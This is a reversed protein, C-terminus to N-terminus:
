IGWHRQALRSAQLRNQVGLKRFVHVLHFKVTKEGVSMAEGIARNSLGEALLRLTRAEQPTLAAFGGTGGEDAARVRAQVFNRMARVAVHSEGAHIRHLIATLERATTGKLVYGAAGVEMARAVDGEQESATFMVIRMGPCAQRLPAIAEIGSEAMAIDLLMLDPRLSEALHLAEAGSEGEGVVRLGPDLELVQVLGARLVPHDDVVVIRIPPRVPPHIPPRAEAM